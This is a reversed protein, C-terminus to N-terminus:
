WIKWTIIFLRLYSRDCLIQLWFISHICHLTGLVLSHSYNLLDKDAHNNLFLLPCNLLLTRGRKSLQIATNNRQSSALPVFGNGPPLVFGLNPLPMFGVRPLQVFGFQCNEVARLGSDLVFIGPLLKRTLDLCRFAQIPCNQVLNVRPSLTKPVLCFSWM